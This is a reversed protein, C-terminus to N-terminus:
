HLPKFYTANLEDDRAPANTTQQIEAGQRVMNDTKLIRKLVIIKTKEKVIIGRFRLKARVLDIHKTICKTYKIERCAHPTTDIHTLRQIANDPKHLRNLIFILAQITEIQRMTDFQNTDEALHTYINDKVDDTTNMTIAKNTM